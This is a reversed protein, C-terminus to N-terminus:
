GSVWSTGLDGQLLDAAWSGLLHLPGAGLGLDERIASLAEETAEQEASRARLVTLAPDRHSLWPLLGVATVVALLSLLRTAGASTPRM